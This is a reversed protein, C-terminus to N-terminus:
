GSVDRRPRARDEEDLVWAARFFYSSFLAAVAAIIISQTAPLDLADQWELMMVGTHGMMRGMERARSKEYDPQFDALTRTVARAEIWYYGGAGLLGLALVLVGIARLREAEKPSRLGTIPNV